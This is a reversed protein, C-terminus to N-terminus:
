TEDCTFSWTQPLEHELCLGSFVTTGILELSPAALLVLELVCLGYM